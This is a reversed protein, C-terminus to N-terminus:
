WWVSKVNFTTDSLAAAAAATVIPSLNLDSAVQNSDQALDDQLSPADYAVFMLKTVLLAEM